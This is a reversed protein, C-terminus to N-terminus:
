LVIKIEILQEVIFVRCFLVILQDMPTWVIFYRNWRTRGTVALRAGSWVTVSYQYTILLGTAAAAQISEVIM